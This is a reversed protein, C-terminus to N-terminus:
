GSAGKKKQREIVRRREAESLQPGAGITKEKELDSRNQEARWEGEFEILFFAISKEWYGISGPPTKARERIKTIAFRIHELDLSPFKPDAKFKEFLYRSLTDDDLLEMNTPRRGGERKDFNPDGVAKVDKVHV